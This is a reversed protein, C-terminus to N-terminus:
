NSYKTTSFERPLHVRQKSPKVEPGWWSINRKHIAWEPHVYTRVRFMVVRDKYSQNDEMTTLCVSTDVEKQQERAM